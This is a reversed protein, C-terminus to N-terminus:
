KRFEWSTTLTPPLHTKPMFSPVGVEIFGFKGLAPIDRDLKQLLLPRPSRSRKKAPDINKTM